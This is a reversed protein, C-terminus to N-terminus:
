SPWDSLRCNSGASVIGYKFSSLTADDKYTGANNYLGDSLASASFCKLYSPKNVNMVTFLGCNGQYFRLPTLYYLNAVNM